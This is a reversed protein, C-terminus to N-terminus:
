SKDRKRNFRSIRQSVANPSIDEGELSLTRSIDDPKIGEESMKVMKKTLSPTPKNDKQKSKVTFRQEAEVKAHETVTEAKLERLAAETISESWIHLGAFTAESHPSVAYFNREDAGLLDPRGDDNNIRRRLEFGAQQVIRAVNNGYWAGIKLATGTPKLLRDYDFMMLEPPPYGPRWEGRPLYEDLIRMDRNFERIGESPDYGFNEFEPDSDAVEYWYLSALVDALKYSAYAVRLMPSVPYEPPIEAFWEEPASWESEVSDVPPSNQSFFWGCSCVETNTPISAECSPCIKMEVAPTTKKKAMGALGM